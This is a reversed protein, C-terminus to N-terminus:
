RDAQHWAHRESKSSKISWDLPQLILFAAANYCGIIRERILNIVM